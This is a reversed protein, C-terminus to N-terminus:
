AEQVIFKSDETVFIKLWVDNPNNADYDGVSEARTYRNWRTPTNEKMFAVSDSDLHFVKGGYAFYSNSVDGTFSKPLHVRVQDRSQHMAQQERANAPESIPAVLCDSVTISGISGVPNNFADRGTEILQKFELAIGIM